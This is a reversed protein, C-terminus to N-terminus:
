PNEPIECQTFVNPAANYSSCTTANVVADTTEM